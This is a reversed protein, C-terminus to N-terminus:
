GTQNISTIAGGQLLLALLPALDFDANAALAADQADSLTRGSAAAAIWAAGGEPLLHPAPDFDPRTVLVDQAIAQPRPADEQTNFRWIDFLPWRSRLLEVAPALSLTSTMLAEPALAALLGADVPVADAAHYSRRLALELRAVDPLYGLHSLQASDALFEPFAAGYHMMLPSEPPHARLFIRALGRMNEEGLLRTIVPFATLMAEILSVAVNNRYVDFRTGAPRDAADRLGDPTPREADLLAAAFSDQTVTM